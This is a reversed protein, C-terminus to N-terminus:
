WDVGSSREWLDIEVSDGGKLVIDRYWGQRQVVIKLM